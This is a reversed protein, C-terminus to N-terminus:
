RASAPLTFAIVRNSRGSFGKYVGGTAVVVLYQTGNVDYVTPITSGAAPLRHAWLEAGTAADFARVMNDTTGTAFLLGGATAAVGGINQLGLVPKGDARIGDLRGFPIQWLKRGNNLDLATLQGWPPRSAPHGRDDLVLQWFASLSFARQRDTRQDLAAFYDYLQRLQTATVAPRNGAGEHQEAFSAASELQERRRLFTIGVLSPVYGDGAGEWEFSGSRSAGHCSACTSQYLADGPLDAGSKSTAKVDAYQVRIVWPVQSSPVYLIGKGPDVAGGPWEAGGHVGYFAIAGGIVPPEFFGFRADRLKREATQRASASVDTIQDRSFEQRSFPEPLTFVPQYAATQEGPITSAPTRRRQYGFIPRGGDRDLLLTNGRKTLVAVVDVRRGARTISTLVPAAPLDLDWLDHEVEQFSWRIEGTKTDIAVVSCSYDNRGPRSSGIMAPRPNGTSVYAMGRRVDASMGGWPSAGGLAAPQGGPKELLSRTWVRAGTRLDYAEVAPELTAIILRDGVIVPAILSSSTGVVGAKGFETIVTGDAARVAYVGRSTPVFLRSAAFDANPEWVLGRKAVPAPLPTRWLEKGTAAHVAVLDGEVSTLFLHTGVVVPNTQVTPGTKTSDGVDTGLSYTWAVQLQRVNRVTIQDLASYKTSAADAGSRHWGRETPEPPSGPPLLAVDVGPVDVFEPLSRRAASDERPPVGTTDALSYQLTSGSTPIYDTPVSLAEGVVATIGGRRVRDWAKAVTRRVGLARAKQVLDPRAIWATPVAVAAAVAALMVTRRLLSRPM